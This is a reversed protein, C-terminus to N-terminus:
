AFFFTGYTVWRFTLVTCVLCLWWSAVQAGRYRKLALLIACGFLLSAIKFTALLAPSNLLGGGLPNIEEFGISGQALITCLLDFLGLIAVLVVNRVVMFTSDVAADIERWAARGQPRYNLLTGLAVVGLVIGMVTIGYKIFKSLSPPRAAQTHRVTREKTLDKVRAALEESPRFAGVLEGWRASHIRGAHAKRLSQVKENAPKDSLLIELVPTECGGHVFAATEDDFVILLGNGELREEVHAAYDFSPYAPRPQGTATEPPLSDMGAGEPGGGGSRFGGPGWRRIQLRRIDLSRGNLFVEEGRFGVVYPPPLYEGKIIVFGSDIPLGNTISEAPKAQSQPPAPPADAAMAFGAMWVLSGLVTVYVRM